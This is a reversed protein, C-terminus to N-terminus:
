LIRALDAPDPLGEWSALIHEGHISVTNATMVWWPDILYCGHPCGLFLFVKAGAIIHRRAWIRQPKRWERLSIGEKLDSVKNEIWGTGDRSYVVDPMGSAGTKLEVRDYTLGSVRQLAPKLKNRWLLQEPKAMAVDEGNIRPDTAVSINWLILEHLKARADEYSDEENAVGLHSVVLEEDIARLWGDHKM